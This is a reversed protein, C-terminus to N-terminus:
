FDVSYSTLQNYCCLVTWFTFFVHCFKHVDLNNLLQQSSKLLNYIKFSSKLNQASFNLKEISSITSSVAYIHSDILESLLAFIILFNISKLHLIVDLKPM